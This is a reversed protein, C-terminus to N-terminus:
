QTIAKSCHPCYSTHYYLAFERVLETWTLDRHFALRAKQLIRTKHNEITKQSLTLEDALATVTCIGHVGILLSIERERRALRHMLKTIGSTEDSLLSASIM